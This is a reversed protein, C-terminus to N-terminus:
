EKTRKQKNLDGDGLLLLDLHSRSAKVRKSQSYGTDCVCIWNNDLLKKNCKIQVVAFEDEGHLNSKTTGHTISHSHFTSVITLIEIWFSTRFNLGVISWDFPKGPNKFKWSVLVIVQSQLHSRCLNDFCWDCVVTRRQVGIVWMIKWDLYTVGPNLRNGLSSKKNCKHYIMTVWVGVYTAILTLLSLSLLFFM